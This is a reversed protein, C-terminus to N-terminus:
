ESELEDVKLLPLKEDADNAPLGDPVVMVPPALGAVLVM